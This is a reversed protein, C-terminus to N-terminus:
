CCCGMGGVYALLVDSWLAPSDFASPHPLLLSISGIKGGALFLAGLVAAMTRPQQFDEGAVGISSQPRGM